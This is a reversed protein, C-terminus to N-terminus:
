AATSWCPSATPWRSSRMWTTSSWCSPSTARSTSRAARGHADVGRARHRGDTRRAAAAAAAHGAGDRTGARAARRPWIAPWASRRARRARGPRAVGRAADRLRRESRAPQWFRFSLPRERAQVALAVNDLVTFDRCVAPSRTPARWGSRAARRHRCRPSTAAPSVSAAARRAAARRLAPQDAHDQRRRQPRDACAGRRRRRRAVVHDTAVLAASAAQCAAVELLASLWRAEGGLLGVLRRPAFLVILLLLPGLISTGTSPAAPSLLEELVLLALAGLVAGFLTASAASSSWSWSTARNRGTCCTPVPSAPSTPSCRAPSGPVPRRSARLLRAPLPAGSLRAGAHAGREDRVGAIVM